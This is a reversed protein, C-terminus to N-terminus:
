LFNKPPSERPISPSPSQSLPPCPFTNKPPEISSLHLITADRYVRPGSPAEIRKTIRLQTINSGKYGQLKTHIAPLQNCKHACQLCLINKRRHPVVSETQEARLRWLEFM